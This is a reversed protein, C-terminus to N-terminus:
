PLIRAYCWERVFRAHDSRELKRWTDLLWWKTRERLAETDSRRM